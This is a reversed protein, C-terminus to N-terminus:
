ARIKPGFKQTSNKSETKEALTESLGGGELFEGGLILRGFTLRSIPCFSDRQVEALGNPQYVEPINLLPTVSLPTNANAQWYM